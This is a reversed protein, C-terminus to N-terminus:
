SQRLQWNRARSPWLINEQQNEERAVDRNCMFWTEDDIQTGLAIIFSVDKERIARQQMRMEAHRTYGLDTMLGEKTHTHFHLVVHRTDRIDTM